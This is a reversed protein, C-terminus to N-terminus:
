RSISSIYYKHKRVREDTKEDYFFANPLYNASDPKRGATSEWSGLLWDAVQTSFNDRNILTTTSMSPIEHHSKVISRQKCHESSCNSTQTHILIDIHRFIVQYESEFLNITRNIFKSRNLAATLCKGQTYHGSQVYELLSSVSSKAQGCKDAFKKFSDPKEVSSTKLFTLWTDVPCTNALNM